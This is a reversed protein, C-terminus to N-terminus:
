EGGRRAGRVGRAEGPVDPAGARQERRALRVRGGHAHEAGGVHPREADEDCAAGGVDLAVDDRLATEPQRAVRALLLTMSKPSDCSWSRSFSVIRRQSSASHGVARTRAMM